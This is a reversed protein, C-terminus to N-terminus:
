NLTVVSIEESPRLDSHDGLIPVVGYVSMAGLYKVDRRFLITDSSLDIVVLFEIEYLIQFYVLLGNFMQFNYMTFTEGLYQRKVERSKRYAVYFAKKQTSDSVLYVLRERCGILQFGPAVKIRRNRKKKVKWDEITCILIEEPKERVQLAIMASGNKYGIPIVCSYHFNREVRVVPMFSNLPTCYRLVQTETYAFVDEKIIFMKFISIIDVKCEIESIRNISNFTHVNVFNGWLSHLQNNIIASPEKVASLLRTWKYDSSDPPVRLASGSPEGNESFSLPERKSPENRLSLIYFKYFDNVKENGHIALITRWQNETSKPQSTAAAM